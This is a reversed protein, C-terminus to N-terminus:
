KSKLETIMHSRVQKMLEDSTIFQAPDISNLIKVKIKQPRIFWQFKPCFTKAHICVPVIEINRKTAIKFIVDYFPNLIVGANIMDINARTGEPFILINKNEGLATNIKEISKRRDAPSDRDVAIFWRSLVWGFIPWQKELNKGYIVTYRRPFLGTVVTAIFYDIFSTHNCVFIKQINKDMTKPLEIKLFAGFAHTICYGACTFYTYVRKQRQDYIFFYVLCAYAIGMIFITVGGLLWLVPTLIKYFIDKNM